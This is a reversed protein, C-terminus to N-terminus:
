NYLQKSVSSIPRDGDSGSEASIIDGAKLAVHLKKRATFANGIGWM